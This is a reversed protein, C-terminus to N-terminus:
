PMVVYIFPFQPSEAAGSRPLALSLLSSSKLSNPIASRQSVRSSYKSISPARGRPSFKAVRAPWPEMLPEM